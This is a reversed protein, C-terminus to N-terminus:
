DLEIALLEGQTPSVNRRCYITGNSLAPLARYTGEPLDTKALSRFEKPDAAFLELQGSVRQALVRDGVGILHATQFDPRRWAVEGDSWRVCLLEGTGFDERGTIAYLWQDILVPTAYQSSIVDGERWLNRPPNSTMDLMRCGVGYSATVFLKESDVLPTAANVTPGRQGFPFESLVNGTEPDIMVTQLRLVAIVRTQGDIQMTVPSAYSAEQDVTAWRTKGDAINVAVLGSRDSGGVPVILASGVLLPTSGVGFYGDEADYDTRLQRSWQTKGDAIAVASLDGAAGYVFVQEGGVLPVCRPGRDADVGGRYVAPFKAQWLLHGDETSLCDLLEQDDARYWLFVKGDSVAVGAYGAGCPVRWKIPPTTTWPSVSEDVAQGDRGPGLIQPWDGALAERAFPVVSSLATGILILRFITSPANRLLSM